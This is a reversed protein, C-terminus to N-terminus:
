FMPRESISALEHRLLHACADIRYTKQYNEVQILKEAYFFVSNIKGVSM